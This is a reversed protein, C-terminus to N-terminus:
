APIYAIICDGNEQQLKQIDIWDQPSVGFKPGFAVWNDFQSDYRLLTYM